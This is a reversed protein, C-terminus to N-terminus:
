SRLTRQRRPRGPHCLLQRRRDTTEDRQQALV